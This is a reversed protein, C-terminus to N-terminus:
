SLRAVSEGSAPLGTGTETSGFAAAPAPHRGPFPTQASWGASRLHSHRNLFARECTHVCMRVCPPPPSGPVPCPPRLLQASCSGSISCHPRSSLPVLPLWCCYQDPLDGLIYWPLLQLYFWTPVLSLVSSFSSTPYSIAMQKRLWEKLSQTKPCEM